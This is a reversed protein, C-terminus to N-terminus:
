RLWICASFPFRLWFVRMTMSNIRNSITLIRKAANRASQIVFRSSEKHTRGRLSHWVREEPRTRSFRVPVV